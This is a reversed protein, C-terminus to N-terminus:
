HPHSPITIKIDTGKGVESELYLEGNNKKLMEKCIILGLGTGVEGMTGKTSGILHHNKIREVLDASMGKGNDKINIEIKNSLLSANIEIQGNVDTFKIANNVLNQIVIGIQNRDAYAMLDKNVTISYRIKKNQLVISLLNLKEQAIDLLNFSTIELVEGKM